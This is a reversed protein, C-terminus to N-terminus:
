LKTTLQIRCNFKFFNWIKLWKGGALGSFYDTNELDTNWKDRILSLQFVLFGYVIFYKTVLKHHDKIIRWKNIRINKVILMAKIKM